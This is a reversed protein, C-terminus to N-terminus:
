AIALTATQIETPAESVDPRELALYMSGNEVIFVLREVAVPDAALTILYVGEPAAPRSAVIDSTVEPAATIAPGQVNTVLVKHLVLHTQAGTEGALTAVVAVTDGPSLLGGVTRSSDLSVTVELLGPPVDIKRGGTPAFVEPTVFRATTLQEGAVLDVSAVLGELSTLDAVAGAAVIKRPIEELRVLTGIQDAPTGAEITDDVILVGVVEEGELARDEAGRVFAVLAVTGVAALVLAALIGVVRRSM